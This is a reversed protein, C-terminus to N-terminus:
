CHVDGNLINTPNPAMETLRNVGKQIVKDEDRFQIM